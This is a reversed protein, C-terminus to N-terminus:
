ETKKNERRYTYFMGLAILMLCISTAEGFVPVNFSVLFIEHILGIIGMVFVVIMWFIM